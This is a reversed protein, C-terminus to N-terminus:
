KVSNTLILELKTFIGTIYDKVVNDAMNMSLQASLLTTWGATVWTRVCAGPPRSFSVEKRGEAGLVQTCVHTM